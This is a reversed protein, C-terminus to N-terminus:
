IPHKVIIEGEKLYFIRSLDLKLIVAGRLFDNVSPSFQFGSVSVGLM